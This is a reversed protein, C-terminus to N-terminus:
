PCLPATKTFTLTIPSGGLEGTFTLVLDRDPLTLAFNGATATLVFRGELSLLDLSASEGAHLVGGGGVTRPKRFDPTDSSGYRGWEVLTGDSCSVLHRSSGSDIAVVEKGALVGSRDVEIPVLSEATTGIGLQGTKNGGWSVLTGDSCLALGGDNEAGIAVPKKGSLAGGTAAVVPWLSGTKTGNGFQGDNNGGWGVITGDSCLALSHISGAAIAVVKRGALAGDVTVDVPVRRDTKSGDGLQGHSNGGWAVIGGDACLALNHASGAAIAVVKRGNLAGTTDVKVPVANKSGYQYVSGDGLQGRENNGWALV